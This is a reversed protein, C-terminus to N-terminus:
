PRVDTFLLEFTAGNFSKALQATIEARQKVEGKCLLENQFRALVSGPFSQEVALALVVSLKDSLERVTRDVFARHRVSEFERHSEYGYGVDKYCAARLQDFFTTIAKYRKSLKFRWASLQGEGILTRTERGVHQWLSWERHDLLFGEVVARAIDLQKLSPSRVGFFDRALDLLSPMQAPENALWSLLHWLPQSLEIHTFTGDLVSRWDHFLEIKRRDRGGCFFQSRVRGDKSLRALSHGFCLSEFKDRFEYVADIEEARESTAKWLDSFNVIRRVEDLERRSGAAIESTKRVPVAPAQFVGLVAQVNEFKTLDTRSGHLVVKRDTEILQEFRQEGLSQLRDRDIAVGRSMIKEDLAAIRQAFDPPLSPEKLQPPESQAQRPMGYLARDRAMQERAAIEAAEIRDHSPIGIEPSHGGTLSKFFPQPEM